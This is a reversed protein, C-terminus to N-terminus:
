TDSESTVQMSDLSCQAMSKIFEAKKAEFDVKADALLAEERKIDEMM